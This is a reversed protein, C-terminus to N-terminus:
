DEAESPTLPTDIKPSRWFKRAFNLIMAERHRAVKLAAGHPPPPVVISPVRVVPCVGYRLNVSMDFECDQCIM